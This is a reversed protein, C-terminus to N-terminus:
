NTYRTINECTARDFNYKIANCYVKIDSRVPWLLQLFLMTKKTTNMFDIASTCFRIM